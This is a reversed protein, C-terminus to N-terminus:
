REALLAAGLVIVLALLSIGAWPWERLRAEARELADSTRRARRALPAGIVILDGPPPAPLVSGYRRLGLALVAGLLVPWSAEFLARPAFAQAVGVGPLTPALAWPLAVAAVALALWPLLLGAAPRAAPGDPASARLRFLFHCMLLTTGAAAFTALTAAAGDGLPEKAALKALAGGTAPLGGLALAILAAPALLAARGCWGTAAVIGLALFLAGKVLLHHGATLTAAPLAAVDGRALGMGLIAAIGGMQSISSYALVVKPDSQTIGVAVGYFAALLGLAALAHGWGSPAVGIPLFLMLGIVGAKVAAGSLVSAAPHPAASYSLPMWVHAPVLGLKMGFGAILLAVIVHHGPAFLLAPGLDRIALSDGPTSQALLSFALLLFIEGLVAFGLYIGGARLSRASEDHAVLGWAPLSVLAYAIYFSFLDGAVFVGLSGALTLLWWEAFRAAKPDGRLWTRASIGAAIWLLAAAGLLLAASPGLELTFRLRAEDLVLSANRAFLAAALGPLPALWLWDPMRARVRESLCASLLALPVGWTALLLVAPSM